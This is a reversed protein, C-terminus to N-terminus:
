PTLYNDWLILEVAYLRALLSTYNRIPKNTLAGIRKDSM